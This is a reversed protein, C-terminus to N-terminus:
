NEVYDEWGGKGDNAEPNLVKHHWDMKYLPTTSRDLVVLSNHQKILKRLLLAQDETELRIDIAQGESPDIITINHM